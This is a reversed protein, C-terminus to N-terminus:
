QQVGRGLVDHIILQVLEAACPTLTMAVTDYVDWLSPQRSRFWRSFSGEDHWRAARVVALGGPDGVLDLGAGSALATRIGEWGTRWSHDAHRDQCFEALAPWTLGSLESPEIVPHACIVDDLDLLGPSTSLGEVHLDQLWRFAWYWGPDVEPACCAAGLARRLADPVLGEANKAIQRHEKDQGIAHLSGEGSAYVVAAATVMSGESVEAHSSDDGGLVVRGPTLLVLGAVPVHLRLGILWEAPHRDLYIIDNPGIRRERDAPLVVLVPEDPAALGGRQLALRLSTPFGGDSEIGAAVSVEPVKSDGLISNPRNSGASSTRVTPKSM